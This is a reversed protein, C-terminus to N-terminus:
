KMEKWWEALPHLYDLETKEGIEPTMLVFHKGKAAEEIRRYPDDWTHRSLAFKGNHVPIVARAHLDEAAKASEEPMMHIYRWDKNYQGCEVLALDFPGFTDGIEKFHSGYGTDGTYYVKREPTFFAFSAWLTPNETLSRGSFHQAPFVYILLDDGIHVKGGWDEEHIKEAPYGWQELYAGIGLPCVVEKVRDKPAKVTDYDLHDWHDHSIVLVDIDPMDEPKYVNSGKFAKNVFSVPSAYDKFVPYVLIKEEHLQMFFSSHGLWVVTDEEEPISKLDSKETVMTEESMLGKKDGFLFEWMAAIKGKGDDSSTM